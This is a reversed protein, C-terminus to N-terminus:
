RRSNLVRELESACVAPRLSHQMGCDLGWLLYSARKVSDPCLTSRIQVQVMYGGAARTSTDRNISVGLALASNVQASAMCRYWPAGM